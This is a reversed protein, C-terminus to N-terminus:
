HPLKCIISIRPAGYVRKNEYPAERLLTEAVAIDDFDYNPPLRINRVISQNLDLIRFTEIAFVKNRPISKDSIQVPWIVPANRFLLSFPRMCPIKILFRPYELFSLTRADGEPRGAGGSLNFYYNYNFNFNYHFLVFDFILILVNNTILRSIIKAPSFRYPCMLWFDLSRM